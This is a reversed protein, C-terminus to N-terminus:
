QTIREIHNDECVKIEEDPIREVETYEEPKWFSEREILRGNMYLDGSIGKPIIHVKKVDIIYEREKLTKM